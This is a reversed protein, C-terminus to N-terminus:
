PSATSITDALRKLVASDQVGVLAYSFNNERWSYVNVQGRGFKRLKDADLPEKTIYLSLRGKESGYFQILVSQGDVRQMHANPLSYGSTPRLTSAPFDNAKALKRLTDIPRIITAGKRDLRFIGPRINPSLDLSNFEYLGNEVGGADFLQRKVLLGTRPEIFLRQVVNGSKDTVVVQSARVGAVTITGSTSFKFRDSSVMRSLRFMAEERRPPLIRIENKDPFYHRRERPTEVIIQGEFPSGKPFDVRSYGGDRTVIESYKVPKGQQRFEITRTGIFRLKAASDIAKALV